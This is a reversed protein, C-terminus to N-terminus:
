SIQRWGCSLSSPQQRSRAGVMSDITVWGARSWLGAREGEDGEDGFDGSELRGARLWAHWEEYGTAQKFRKSWGTQRLSGTKPANVGLQKSRPRPRMPLTNCHVYREWAGRGGRVRQDKGIYRATGVHVACHHQQKSSAITRIAPIEERLPKRRMM